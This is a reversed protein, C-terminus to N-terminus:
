LQDLEMDMKIFTSANFSTNAKKAKEIFEWALGNPFDDNETENLFYIMHSKYLGLAIIM